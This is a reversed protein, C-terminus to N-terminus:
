VKTVLESDARLEHVLAMSKGSKLMADAISMSREQFGNASLFHSPCRLNSATVAIVEHMQMSTAAAQIM